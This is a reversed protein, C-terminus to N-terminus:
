SNYQFLCHQQSQSIQCSCTFVYFGNCVFHNEQCASMFIYRHKFGRLRNPSCHCNQTAHPHLAQSPLVCNQILNIQLFYHVLTAKQPELSSFTTSSVRFARNRATKSYKVSVESTQHECLLSMKEPCNCLDSISRKVRLTVTVTFM